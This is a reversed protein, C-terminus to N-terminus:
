SRFFKIYEFQDTSHFISLMQRIREGEGRIIFIELCKNNRLHSHLQTSVQDQYAHRIMDLKPASHSNHVIILVGEVDGELQEREKLEAEASRLCARIAESRGALGLVKKLEDLLEINHDTLSVSIVPM